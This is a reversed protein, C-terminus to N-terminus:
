DTIEHYNTVAKMPEKISSTAILEVPFCTLDLFALVLDISTFYPNFNPFPQLIIAVVMITSDFTDVATAVWPHQIHNVEEVVVLELDVVPFTIRHYCDAAEVLMM